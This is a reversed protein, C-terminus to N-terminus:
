SDSARHGSTMHQCATPMEQADYESENSAVAPVAGAPSFLKDACALLILHNVLCHLASCGACPPGEACAHATLAHSPDRRYIWQLRVAGSDADTIKLRPDGEDLWADILYRM